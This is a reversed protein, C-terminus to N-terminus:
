AEPPLVRQSERNLFATGPVHLPIDLEWGHSATLPAPFTLSSGWSPSQLPELQWSHPLCHSLIHRATMLSTLLLPHSGRQGCPFLRSYTVTVMVLSSTCSSHRCVTGEGCGGPGRLLVQAGGSPVACNKPAEWPARMRKPFLSSEQACLVLGLANPPLFHSCVGLPCLM